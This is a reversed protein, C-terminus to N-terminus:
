NDVTGFGKPKDAAEAISQAEEFRSSDIDLNLQICCPVAFDFEAIHMASLAVQNYNHMIATTVTSSVVIALSGAELIDIDAALTDVEITTNVMAVVITDAQKVEITVESSGLLVLVALPSEMPVEGALVQAMVLPVLLGLVVGLRVLAVEVLELRPFGPVRLVLQALLKSAM